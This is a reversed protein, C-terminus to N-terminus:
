AGKISYQSIRRHQPSLDTSPRPHTIRATSISWPPREGNRTLNRDLQATVRNMKTMQNVIHVPNEESRHPYEPTTYLLRSVGSFTVIRPGLIPSNFFTALPTRAMKGHERVPLVSQACFHSHGQQVFKKSGGRPM